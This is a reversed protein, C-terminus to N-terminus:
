YEYLESLVMSILSEESNEMGYHNTDWFYYWGNLGLDPQKFLLVEGEDTLGYTPFEPDVDIQSNCKIYGCYWFETGSFRKTVIIEDGNHTKYKGMLESLM